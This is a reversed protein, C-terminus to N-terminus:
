SVNQTVVNRSQDFGGEHSDELYKYIYIYIYHDGHAYDVLAGSQHHRCSFPRDISLFLATQRMDFTGAVDFHM